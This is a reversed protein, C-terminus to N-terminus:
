YIKKLNAYWLSTTKEPCRKATENELHCMYYNAFTPGLPSGMMVGEKQLYLEGDIARFPTGTTCLRLLEKMTKEPISSPAALNTSHYVNQLIIEITREIPVNTFLSEVDLSGMIGRVNACQVLRLFEHTSDVMYKKPM